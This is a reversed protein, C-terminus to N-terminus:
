PKTTQASNFSRQYSNLLTKYITVHMLWKQIILKSRKRKQQLLWHDKAKVQSNARVRFPTQNSPQATPLTL